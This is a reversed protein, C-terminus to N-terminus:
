CKQRFRLRGWKPGGTASLDYVGNPLRRPSGTSTFLLFPSTKRSTSQHVLRGGTANVLQIYNPRGATTVPSCPRIGVNYPHALCTVTNNALKRIPSAVSPKYVWFTTGPCSVTPAKVPAKTPKKTPTM